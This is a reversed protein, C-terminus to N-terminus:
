GKLRSLEDELIPSAELKSKAFLIFQKFHDEIEFIEKDEDSIDIYEMLEDAIERVKYEDKDKIIELLPLVLEITEPVAMNNEGKEKM